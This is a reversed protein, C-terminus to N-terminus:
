GDIGVPERRNDTADLAEGLEPPLHNREGGGLSDGLRRNRFGPVRDDSQGVRAPALLQDQHGLRAIKIASPEEICRAPQAQRFYGQRALHDLDLMKRKETGAFGVICSDYSQGLLRHRSLRALDRRAFRSRQRQNSSSSNPLSAAMCQTQTMMIPNRAPAIALNKTPPGPPNMTVVRSPITPEIKAVQSPCRMPQYSCPWAAPKMPAM